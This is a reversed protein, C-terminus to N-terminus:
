ISARQTPSDPKLGDVGPMKGLLHNTNVMTKGRYTFQEQSFFSYYQPYDRLIARTLIAIDHASSTQRNEPM